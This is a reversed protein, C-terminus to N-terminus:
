GGTEYSEETSEICWIRGLESIKGNSQGDSLKGGSVPCSTSAVTLPAAKPRFHPDGLEREISCPTLISIVFFFKSQRDPLM